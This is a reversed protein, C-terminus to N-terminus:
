IIEPVFFYLRNNQRKFYRQERRFALPSRLLEQNERSFGIKQLLRDQM